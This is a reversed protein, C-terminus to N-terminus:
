PSIGPVATALRAHRRGHRRVLRLVLFTALAAYGLGLGIM